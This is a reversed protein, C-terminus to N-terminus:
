RRRRRAIDVHEHGHMWVLEIRSFRRHRLVDGWSRLHHAVMTANTGTKSPTTHTAGSFIVVASATMSGSYTNNGNLLPM